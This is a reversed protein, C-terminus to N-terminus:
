TTNRANKVHQRSCRSFKTAEPERSIAAALGINVAAAGAGLETAPRAEEEDLAPAEAAAEEEADDDEAAAAAEAGAGGELLM